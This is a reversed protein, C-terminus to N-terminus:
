KCIHLERLVIRMKFIVNVSIKVTLKELRIVQDSQLKKTNKNIRKLTAAANHMLYRDNGINLCELIQLYLLLPSATIAKEDKSNWSFRAITVIFFLLKEKLM